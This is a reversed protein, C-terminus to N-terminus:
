MCRSHRVKLAAAQERYRHEGRVLTEQAQVIHVSTLPKCALPVRPHPLSLGRPGNHAASKCVQQRQQKLSLAQKQLDAIEQQTLTILQDLNTFKEKASDRTEKATRTSGQM